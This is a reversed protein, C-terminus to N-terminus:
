TACMGFPFRTNIYVCTCPPPSVGAKAGRMGTIGLVYYIYYLYFTSARFAVTCDHKFSSFSFSSDSATFWLFLNQWGCVIFFLLLLCCCSCCLFHLLVSCLLLCIYVFVYEYTTCSRVTCYNYDILDLYETFGRVTDVYCVFLLLVLM